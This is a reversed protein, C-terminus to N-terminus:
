LNLFSRIADIIATKNTNDNSIIDNKSNAITNKVETESKSIETLIENKSQNTTENISIETEDINENIEEKADNMQKVIDKRWKRTQELFSIMKNNQQFSDYYYENYKTM